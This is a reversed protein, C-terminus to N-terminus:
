ELLVSIKSLLKLLVCIKHKSRSIRDAIVSPQFVVGLWLSGRLFVCFVCMCLGDAEECTCNLGREVVEYYSM